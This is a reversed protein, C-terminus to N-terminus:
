TSTRFLVIEKLRLRARRTRTLVTGCSLALIQSIESTSYGVLVLLLPERYKQPLAELGDFVGEMVLAHDLSLAAQDVINSEDFSDYIFSKRSFRRANERRLITCLWAKFADLDRISDRAAWARCYTEQVLDHSVAADGTMNFAYGLVSPHFRRVQEAFGDQSMTGGLEDIGKARDGQKMNPNIVMM